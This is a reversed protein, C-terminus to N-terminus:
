LIETKPLPLIGKKRNEGSKQKQPALKRKIKWLKKTKSIFYSKGGAIFFDLSKQKQSRTKRKYATWSNVAPSWSFTDMWETFTAESLLGHAFDSINMNM